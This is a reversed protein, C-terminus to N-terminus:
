RAVAGKEDSLARAAIDSRYQMGDFSIRTIADYARDRADRITSGRASVCLIRGPGTAVPGDDTAHTRYHFLEIGPLALAEDTGNIPTGAATVGEDGAVVVGVCAGDSFQPATQLAGAAVEALLAALDGEFRPLVVQAEPDGFRVNYEVMKPGEDTLMLQAYLVGRYDIGENRLGEVTPRLVRDMVQGLVAETAVPVPSYAGMGGTMAGRDNDLARKHDQAPALPVVRSGDCLALVSLEPGEMAEEVVVTRGADGFSRGGLKEKADEIADVLSDTVFVGKGGTLGDAKVVYGGPLSKLFEEVSALDRFSGSRSTPIGYRQFFEKMWTKSGEFRAGDAGPGVVSKGQARLRDALGDVLPAEPGVVFLDAEVADAPTDVSGPIVGPNGPTAVVEATRGLASVLAHERSGGGVVCVRM